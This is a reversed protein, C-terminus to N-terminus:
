HGIRIKTANFSSSAKFPSNAFKLWKTYDGQYIIDQSGLSQQTVKNGDITVDNALTEVTEKLQKEM